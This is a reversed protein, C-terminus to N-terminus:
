LRTAPTPRTEGANPMRPNACISLLSVPIVYGETCMYSASPLVIGKAPFLVGNPLL